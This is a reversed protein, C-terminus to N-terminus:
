CSRLKSHWLEDVVDVDAFDGSSDSKKLVGLVDVLSCSDSVVREVSLLFGTSFLGFASASATNSCGLCSDTFNIGREDGDQLM